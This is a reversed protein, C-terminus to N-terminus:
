KGEKEKENEDEELFEVKVRVRKGICHEPFHIVGVSIAGTRSNMNPSHQIVFVRAIHSGKKYGYNGTKIIM